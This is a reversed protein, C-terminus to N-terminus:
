NKFRSIDVENPLAQNNELHNYLENAMKPALMVGRTGLGNLIALQKHKPHIGLIPRRDKVTPRIGAQHDIVKYSVNIIKQLKSELEDKAEKTPNLTKDKWNFTAGVKYNDNGLPMIFVSSKIISKINLNPSHITLLEGKAEKLPITAFYPNKVVGYGECFIIKKLAIGKYTVLDNNFGILSYDFRENTLQNKTNLHNKYSDLLVKTDIKGTNTIRGLEFPANIGRNYNKIIKPIMYDSFFPKDCANFWNNQEEVSTFIRNIDLPYDIQTNLKQELNKYFPVAIALQDFADWVPTFRKLIVPNYVGGAVRSSNQSCDEYVIFSKNNQELVEAFALGALGLGVIIYDVQM